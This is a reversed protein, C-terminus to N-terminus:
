PNPEANAKCQLDKVRKTLEDVASVLQMFQEATVQPQPAAAPTPAAPPVPVAGLPIETGIGVAQAGVLRAPAVPVQPAYPVYVMRPILLTEQTVAKTVQSPAAPAKPPEPCSKLAIEKPFNVTIKPQPAAPCSPLACAPHSCGADASEVVTGDVVMASSEHKHLLHCGSCSCGVCLFLIARLM